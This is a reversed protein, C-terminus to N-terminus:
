AHTMAAVNMLFLTSLLQIRIEREYSDGFDTNFTILVM